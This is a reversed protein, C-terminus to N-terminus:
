FKNYFAIKDISKRDDHLRSPHAEASPYGIPLFAVVEYNDPVSYVERAKQPDFAGVWTTGLGLNSAELMMHTTVISADILGGDTGDYGRKWAENKDYCVLMVLPAGWGYQTCESMKALEEKDTLVLIRQSQSNRGTPALRAAELIKNIKEQEIEKTVDFSRCSYRSKALDLFDM